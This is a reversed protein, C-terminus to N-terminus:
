STTLPMNLITRAVENAAETGTRVCDPVGIGTYANGALAVCGPLAKRCQEIRSLRELHGPAPQAMARNWRYIRYERPEGAIGAIERLERTITAILEDDSLQLVSEDRLGGLFARVIGRDEPARHPFKNHVFTCALMRRGETRPVLFGFGKDKGALTARDYILTTTISSSYSIGSLEHSLEPGAEALLRAVVHAPVAFIVGDFRASRGALELTWQGGSYRVQEVPTGANLSKEELRAVLADVLQQMGNKLSSFLAPAPKGKMREAMKKRAALMGRSLSGYQKELEVFRPLVARASLNASDGGYVGSLLPDALRDVMEQGFHRRVLEAVSEDEAHTKPPHLMEQAMRIKAGWSFLPTLVTPTIKTPVMFMLGDPMEILRNKVVIYTRRQADNSGIIQDGLGLERCLQAAWPKETLFSDAGAEVLCGDVKETVLVGGMRPAAEFLSYEFGAVGRRIKQLSYAASLGSIGGGIIAIRKV